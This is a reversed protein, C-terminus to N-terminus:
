VSAAHLLESQRCFASVYDDHAIPARLLEPSLAFGDILVPVHQRLQACIADASAGLALAQNSDLTGLAVHCGAERQLESIGYLAALLRLADRVEPVEASRSAEVFAELAIRVGRARAMALGSNMAGNWSDFYSQDRSGDLAARTSRLLWAERHRLAEVLAAPDSLDSLQRAAGSPAQTEAQSLLQAAATALLVQNDGEATVLGQLLSGYDAIRNVSFMGQAGCRERCTAIVEAMEWTCLPKTISILNNLDVSVEGTNALFERKARNLLFTMAYVKALATFMPLQYSRYEIIPMDNSGPANTLRREGYRLAIYVSARGAGV